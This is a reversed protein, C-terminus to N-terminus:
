AGDPDSVSLSLQKQVSTYTGAFSAQGEFCSLALTVPDIRKRNVRGEVVIEPTPEAQWEGGLTRHVVEAFYGGAEAARDTLYADDTAEDTEYEEAVLEDLRGLSEASYNLDYGPWTAAFATADERLDDITRAGSGGAGGGEKAAMEAAVSAVEPDSDSSQSRAEDVGGATQQDREREPPESQSQREATGDPRRETRGPDDSGTPAADSGGRAPEPSSPASSGQDRAPPDATPEGLVTPDPV